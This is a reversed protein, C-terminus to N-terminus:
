RLPPWKAGAEIILHRHSAPALKARAGGSGPASAASALTLRAAESGMRLTKFYDCSKRLHPAGAHHLPFAYNPRLPRRRLAVPDIKMRRAGRSDVFAAGRVYAPRWPRRAPYADVGLATDTFSEKFRSM